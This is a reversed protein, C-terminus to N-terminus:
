PVEPVPVDGAFQIQKIRLDPPVGPIAKMAALTAKSSNVAISLDAAELRETIEMDSNNSRMLLTYYRNTMM